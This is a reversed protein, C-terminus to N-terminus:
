SVGTRGNSGSCPRAGILGREKVVSRGLCELLPEARRQGREDVLGREFTAIVSARWVYRDVAQGEADTLCAANPLVLLSYRLHDEEFLKDVLSHEYFV